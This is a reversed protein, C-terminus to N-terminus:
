SSKKAFNLDSLLGFTLRSIAVTVYCLEIKLISVSKNYGKCFNNKNRTDLLGQQQINSVETGNLLAILLKL